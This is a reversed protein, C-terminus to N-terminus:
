SASLQKRPLDSSQHLNSYFVTMLVLYAQKPSKLAKRCLKM